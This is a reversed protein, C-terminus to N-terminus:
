YVVLYSYLMMCNYACKTPKQMLTTRMVDGVITMSATRLRPVILVSPAPNHLATSQSLATRVRHATMMTALTLLATSIKAATQTTSVVKRLSRSSRPTQMLDMASSEVINSTIV